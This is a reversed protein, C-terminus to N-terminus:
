GQLKPKRKQLGGRKANATKAPRSIRTKVEGIDSINDSAARDSIPEGANARSDNSTQKENLYNWVSELQEKRLDESKLEKFLHATKPSNSFANASAFSTVWCDLFDVGNIKM